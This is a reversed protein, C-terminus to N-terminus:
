NAFVERIKSELIEKEGSGTTNFRILPIDYKALIANKLEDRERQKSREKHYYYGDVEIAIVLKKDMKNFIVFDIHTWENNAYQKEEENLLDIDALIDMLPVRTAIDLNNFEGEQIVDKILNYTLNESDYESIRKKNKLYESRYRRNEKYLLDYISKTKSEIVEFNNYQIYKVLDDINTGQNKDNDSVVVRLYRKARSVAVNLMKPDDVFEGIENDVTTIIIADEERGQFKHITDIKLQSNFKKELEKKQNRYPSIVGINRIDTKETLESIIENEIVDIQRYNVHGRAHNGKTTIYAKLVDQEGKDETMIILEGNYFKKNCFQIIKPHCRYHEKLLTKPADVIVNNVSSLFSHRLYDYQSDIQYKKSVEEILNKDDTTVVNPLQKVDGVIVANKAVSLALIGTLLDVQSSEDMIIYDFKYNPNLCKQISYTTSFVIPYEKNFEYSNNYLDSMKYIKRKNEKGYRKKLYQNLLKKSDEVLLDLKDTGLMKLKKMNIQIQNQLEIEKVMFFLRNYSNVIDNKNRHYFDSNGIGYLLQSKLRFWINTRNLDEYEVKLKMIIDSRIKNINRIKPINVLNTNQHKNFYQHEIKIERLEEKLKAIANQTDFIKIINQNLKVIEGELLYENELKEKFKPYEGTQKEIFEEKNERKGLRACLYELNYKQLKEYVNDTAANNNSVVAVTKGNIIINAIINLITHTKGTGPPGEIISIQNKMAKRVAEFQSKNAGFPFITNDINRNMLINMKIKPNLYKYLATDNSIFNIKEYEDTLLSKGEETKISVIKSIEKYYEFKNTSLGEESDNEVLKLEYESITIFNNDPFFIKYYQDFKILKIANYVYGSDIIIKKDKINIESPDKYFEFDKRIYSYVKNINKFKIDVYQKNYEYSIVDETMDENKIIVLYKYINM